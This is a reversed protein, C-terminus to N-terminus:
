NRWDTQVIPPPKFMSQSKWRFPDRPSKKPSNPQLNMNDSIYYMKDDRGKIKDIQVIDSHKSASISRYGLEINKLNYTPSPEWVINRPVASTDRGINVLCQNTNSYSLTTRPNYDGNCESNNIFQKEYYKNNWRTFWDFNPPSITKLKSNVEPSKNITDFRKENLSIDKTIPPRM